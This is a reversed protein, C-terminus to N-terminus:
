QQDQVSVVYVHNCLPIHHIVSFVENHNNQNVTAQM